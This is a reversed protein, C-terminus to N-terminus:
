SRAEIFFKKRTTNQQSPHEKLVLYSMWHSQKENDLKLEKSRHFIEKENPIPYFADRGRFLMKRRLLVTAEANRKDLRLPKGRALTKKKLQSECGAKQLLM